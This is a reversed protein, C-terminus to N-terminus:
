IVVLLIYCTYSTIFLHKVHKLHKMNIRTNNVLRFGTAYALKNEKTLSEHPIKRLVHVETINGGGGWM